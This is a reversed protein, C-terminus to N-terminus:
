RPAGFRKTAGPRTMGLEKGIQTWTAGRARRSRVEHEVEHQISKLCGRLAMEVEIASGSELAEIVDRLIPHVAPAAPRAHAPRPRAPQKRRKSKPM